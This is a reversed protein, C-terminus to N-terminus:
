HIRTQAPKWSVAFLIQRFFGSKVSNNEKVKNENEVVHM